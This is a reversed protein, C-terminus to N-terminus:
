KELELKSNVSGGGVNQKIHVGEDLTILIRIGYATNNNVGIWRSGVNNFYLGYNSGITAFWYTFGTDLLTVLEMKESDIYPYRVFTPNYGANNTIAIYSTVGKKEKIIEKNEINKIYWNEAQQATLVNVANKATSFENQYMSYDRNLLINKSETTKAKQHYYIEPSGASILTIRGTNENIDWIKWGDYYNELDNNGLDVVNKNRSNGDEFGSFYGQKLSKEKSWSVSGGSSTIKNTDVSKNWIGADYNVYDGMEISFLTKVEIESSDTYKGTGNYVRVKCKYITNKEEVDMNCTITEEATEIESKIEGDIYFVYKFIGNDKDIAGANLTFTKTAIDSAELIVNKPGEIEIPKNLNEGLYNDISNMLNQILLEENQSEKEYINVTGIIKNFISEDGVFFSISVGALILMLIITIILAVLTIANDGKLIENILNKKNIDM